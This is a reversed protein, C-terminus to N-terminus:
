GEDAAIPLHYLSYENSEYDYFIVDAEKFLLTNISESPMQLQKLIIARVLQRLVRNVRILQNPTWIENKTATYHTYYNRSDRMLSIVNSVNSIRQKIYNIDNCITILHFYRVIQDWKTPKKEVIGINYLEEALQNRLSVCNDEHFYKHFVELATTLNLFSIEATHNSVSENLLDLIRVFKNRNKYFLQLAEDWFESVQDYYLLADNEAVVKQRKITLHEVSKGETDCFNLQILKPFRSTFLSLLKLFATADQYLELRSALAQSIIKVESDNKLIIEGHSYKETCFESLELDVDPKIRFSKRFFERIFIKSEEQASFSHEAKIRSQNIWDTLGTMKFAVELYKKETVKPLFDGKFLESIICRVLSLSSKRFFCNILTYKEDSDLSNAFVIPMTVFAYKLGGAFDLYDKGNEDIYLKGQLVEEPKSPEYFEVPIGINM